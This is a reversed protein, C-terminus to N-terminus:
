GGEEQGGLIHRVGPSHGSLVREPISSSFLVQFPVLRRVDNRLFFFACAMLFIFLDTPFNTFAEKSADASFFFNNKSLSSPAGLHGAQSIIACATEDDPRM